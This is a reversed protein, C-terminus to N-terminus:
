KTEYPVTKYGDNILKTMGDKFVVIKLGRIEDDLSRALFPSRTGLRCVFAVPKSLDLDKILKQLIKKRNGRMDVTIAGKIVGTQKWEEPTRVDVIQPYKSVEDPAVSIIEVKAGAFIALGALLFLFKLM